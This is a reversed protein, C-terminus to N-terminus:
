FCKSYQKEVLSNNKTKKIQHKILWYPDNIFKRSVAVMDSKKKAFINDILKLSNIMGLAIVRNKTLNKIKAALKVQYGPFYKINTKPIIGGSTVAIYDTKLKKLKKSLYVADNIKLGHSLNDSGTVRVGLIKNKPWIKRIKSFIELLLRCRNNLSGGYIDNRKNSVPSMFQHLLYGHAMHIELCDFGSKNARKAAKVYDNIVIKIDKNKLEKPKPWSVDRAIPSPAVTQWGGKNKKLSKNFKVWPIEASGKRGSHSLQIGIATSSNKKLHTVLRKFSKQQRYNSILLDKKSIRGVRNVATSELMLLGAGLQSLKSLHKYHWKSPEGNKASYQCMPGIFIRNKLSVKNIKQKKLIMKKLLLNM